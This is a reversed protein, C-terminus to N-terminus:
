IIEIINTEVEQESGLLQKFHQVMQDYIFYSLTYM